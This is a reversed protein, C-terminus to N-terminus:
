ELNVDGEQLEVEEEEEGECDLEKDDDLLGLFELLTEGRSGEGDGEEQEEEGGPPDTALREGAHNDDDDEVEDGHAVEEELQDAHVDGGVPALAVVLWRALGQSGKGDQGDEKKDEGNNHGTHTCVVEVLAELRM